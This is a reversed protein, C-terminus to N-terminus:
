SANYLNICGNFFDTADQKNWQWPENGFLLHQHSVTTLADAHCDHMLHNLVNAVADQYSGHFHLDPNNYTACEIFYSPAKDSDFGHNNALAGKMNKLIRVVDKYQQTTREHQNKDVGNDYHLKPHNIIKTGDSAYFQIGDVFSHLDDEPGHFYDYDRFHLCPVVDAPLRQSNGALKLSKGGTTDVNEAGFFDRLAQAVDAKFEAFGYTAAPYTNLYTQQQDVPMRSIDRHWTSNLQVVVDVDSDGKVNTSNKYSGQLYVEFDKGSLPAYANLAERIKEHTFKPKTTAPANTWTILQTETIPM